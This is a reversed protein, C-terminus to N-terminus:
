IELWIRTLPQPCLCSAGFSKQRLPQRKRSHWSRHLGRKAPCLGTEADSQRDLLGKSINTHHAAFDDSLESRFRLADKNFKDVFSQVDTRSVYAQSQTEAFTDIAYFLFRELNSIDTTAHREFRKSIEALIAEVGSIVESLEDLTQQAQRRLNDRMLGSYSKAVKESTFVRLALRTSMATNHALSSFAAANPLLREEAVSTKILRTLFGTLRPVGSNELLQARKQSGNDGSLVRFKNASELAFKSVQTECLHNVQEDTSSLAANAWSASVTLVPIATNPFERALTERVFFEVRRTDEAIDELSDIRNIVAIIRDRQLGRILRLLSLDATSLPNKASLVVIYIDADAINAHTIEDRVFFLDNIGPTDILVSPYSYPSGELFIEAMKTIDSYLLPADPGAAKYDTASVYQDLVQPTVASFLHHKGLVKSYSPGLRREARRQLDHLKTRSSPLSALGSGQPGRAATSSMLSDWESETFFHFLASNAQRQSAGLFIKTVVATSPNIDTPLFHPKNILANILSTKGAKIQGVFAIRCIDAELQSRTDSVFWSVRNHLAGELDGSVQVLESKAKHLAESVGLGSSPASLEKPFAM